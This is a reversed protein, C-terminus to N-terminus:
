QLSTANAETAADLTLVDALPVHDIAQLCELEQIVDLHSDNRLFAAARREQMPTTFVFGQVLHCGLDTALKLQELTEVGEVVVKVNLANAMAIISRILERHEPKEESDRVFMRDIKIGDIPYKALYSLSSYGTGFDDVFIEFGLKSLGHINQAAQGTDDLLHSELIELVVQSSDIGFKEITELFFPISDVRELQGNSLNINIKHDSPVVAEDLWRRFTCCAKELIIRDISVVSGSEQAIPLFQDPAIIGKQPHKWRALGETSYIRGNRTNVIPEFNVVFQREAIALKLERELELTKRADDRMQQDFLVFLRQKSKARYMAFDADRMMEEASEHQESAVVVGVSARFAVEMGGCLFPAEFEAAIRTALENEDVTESLNALLTFEDGGLRALCDGESLVAQMREAFAILLQDGVDHGLTDNIRKFKDFDVYCVAIRESWSSERCIEFRRNLERIFYMRNHVGTLSDHTADYELRQNIKQLECQAERLDATRQQVDNELEQQHRESEALRLSSENKLQEYLKRLKSSSIKASADLLERNKEYGDLCLDVALLFDEWREPTPLRDVSVGKRRMLRALGPNLEKDSSNFM